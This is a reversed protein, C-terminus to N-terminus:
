VMFLKYQLTATSLGLIIGGIVQFLNHCKKYLRAWGMLVVLLTGVVNGRFGKAFTLMSMVVFYTTSSMHGSPFGPANARVSGNRSLYDTNFAGKPRRTIKYMFSPYKIRKIIDSLLTAILLGILIRIYLNRNNECSRILIIYILTLYISLPIVSIIDAINLLSFHKIDAIM